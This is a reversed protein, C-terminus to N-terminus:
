EGGQPPESMQDAPVEFESYQKWDYEDDTFGSASGGDPNNQSLESMDGEYDDLADMAVIVPSSSQSEDDLPNWYEHGLEDEDGEACFIADGSEM